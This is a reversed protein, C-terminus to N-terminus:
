AIQRDSISIPGGHLCARRVFHYSYHSLTAEKLKQKSTKEEAHKATKPINM